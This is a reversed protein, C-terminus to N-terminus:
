KLIDELAKLDKIKIKRGELSILGENQMKILERSLSPRAVNLFDAMEQRSMSAPTIESDRHLYLIFKAIKKRLSSCSMIELRGNLALSKQAMIYLMNAILLSHFGCNRECTGLLFKKPIMLIQTKAQAQAFVGYVSDGTFLLEYGFTDGRNEFIALINRKGDYFDRGIRVAGSILVPLKSPVDGESFIMEGKEYTIIEAKSCEMCHYLDEETLGKFLTVDKLAKMVTEDNAASKKEIM